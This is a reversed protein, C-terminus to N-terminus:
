WDLEYRSLANLINRLSNVTEIKRKRDTIQSHAMVALFEIHETVSNFKGPSGAHKKAISYHSIIAHQNAPIEGCVLSKLLLSDAFRVLSRFDRHHENGTVSAALTKVEHQLKEGSKGRNKRWGVVTKATFYNLLSYADEPASECAERYYEQMRKLAAIRRNGTTVWAKRKYASALISLRQASKGFKLLDKMMDISENVLETPTQQDPESSGNQWQEVALRTQLSVLQEITQLSVSSRRDNLAAKYHSTAKRLVGLEGYARGLAEHVDKNMWHDPIREQLSELKKCLGHIDAGSIKADNGIHDVKSALETESVAEEKYSHNESKGSLKLQFDPNGYCQYAGWTNSGHHQLYTAKRANRVADGFHRGELMLSYFTNAFTEAARDNVAWGAAIVAKVGMRIFETALNAALKHPNELRPIGEERGLHCCNIFVLEPVFRISKINAPTLFSNDGIVMGTVTTRAPVEQGCLDCSKSSSDLAYDYVGHGAFHMIRYSDAHLAHIVRRADTKSERGLVETVHQNRSNLMARVTVAESEAGPLEPFEDRNGLPNGIVLAKNGRTVPSARFTVSELQRIMGFEVSMPLSEATTSAQSKNAWRDQLLEWPYRAAKENLILVHDNLNLSQEKLQHPVLMEFLTKSIDPDDYTSRISQEIFTDVQALDIAQLSVETRAKDTLTNFRLSNDKDIHQIQLRRWWGASEDFTVRTKAGAITKVKAGAKGKGHGLTLAKEFVVQGHLSADEDLICMAHAAANAIDEWSEVFELEVFRYDGCDMQQLQKNAKILGSTMAQLSDEITIGGAGTGILLSSLKLEQASSSLDAEGAHKESISIAYQLAAHCYAEALTRRTLAGMEGLGIILAAEPRAPFPKPNNIIEATNLPGPYLGLLMRKRLRNDFLQNVYGEASVIQDDRYHGLALTNSAYCLNGHSIVIKLPTIVETKETKREVGLISDFLMEEDPLMDVHEETPMPFPKETEGREFIPESSLYQNSTDGSQLLELFGSFAKKHDALNGHSTNAYWCRINSPIGSEWTVRGDGKATALFVIEQRDSESSVVMVDMPTAPAKGAIYLMHEHNMKFQSIKEWFSKTEDLGQRTPTIWGSGDADALMKWADMDMMDLVGHKFPLLQLIGPFASIIKLLGKQSHRFDVLSLYKVMKEQGVLARTIVHSGKHPTGLMLLRGKCGVLRNWLGPNLAFAMRAVLGGMSHAIIHLPQKHEEALQLKKDLDHAFRGAETSIPLRWDYPYPIVDHEQQELFEVLDAYASSVLSEASVGSSDIKLRRMGGTAIDLMDLWVRNENVQLHSGMIGPLVFVIAKDGKIRAARSLLLGPKELIPTFGANDKEARLLGDVLVKATKDNYFYQFHNVDAGQDFFNRAHNEKRRTGGTMSRTNVVLDHDQRYYLDPILYKLKGWFTDAEVDGSIVALDANVVTSSLNLMRVLPSAPMQAELGPLEKPDTREKVVALTFTSFADYVSSAKLLPINGIVNLIVSLWRDLRGSALTTGRAPCATRVFRHICFKREGKSKGREIRADLLKCLEELQEVQKNYDTGAMAYQKIEKDSVPEEDKGVDVRALLEAVLGGRSHSVMHIHLPKPSNSNDALAHLEKVLDIANKIPSQTLTRHELAYIHKGFYHQLRSLHKNPTTSWLDGFSGSTSSATGHIFLLMPKSGDPKEEPVELKLLHKADKGPNSNTTCRYLGPPRDLGKEVMKGIGAATKSVPDIDFIKLSKLLWESVGRNHDGLQLQRPIELTNADGGRSKSEPFDEEFQDVRTWIFIGDEFELLMVDDDRIDTLTEEAGADRASAIFVEYKAKVKIASDVGEFRIVPNSNTEEVSQIHLKKM